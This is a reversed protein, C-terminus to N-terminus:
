DSLVEDIDGVDECIDVVILCVTKGDVSINCCVVFIFWIVDDFGISVECIDEVVNIVIVCDREFEIM